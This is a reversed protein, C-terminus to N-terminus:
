GGKSFQRLSASEKTSKSQAGKLIRSSSDLVNSRERPLTAGAARCARIHRFYPNGAIMQGCVCIRVLLAHKQARSVRVANMGTDPVGYENRLWKATPANILAMSIESGHKKCFEEFAREWDAIRLDGERDLERAAQDVSEAGVGGRGAQGQALNDTTRNQDHKVAPSSTALRGSRGV